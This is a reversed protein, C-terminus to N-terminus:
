LGHIYLYPILQNRLSLLSFSFQFREFFYMRKFNPLFTISEVETGTRNITFFRNCEKMCGLFWEIDENRDTDEDVYDAIQRQVM